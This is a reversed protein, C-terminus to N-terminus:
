CEQESERNFSFDAPMKGRLRHLKELLRNNTPKRKLSFFCEDTVVVEVDDGENLGPVEVVAVPLRIPLSNGWRVHLM